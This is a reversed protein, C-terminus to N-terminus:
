SSGLDIDQKCYPCKYVQKLEFWKLICLFHFTHKCKSLKLVGGKLPDLCIPCTEDKVEELYEACNTLMVEVKNCVVTSIDERDLLRQQARHKTASRQSRVLAKAVMKRVRKEEELAADFSTTSINERSQLLHPSSRSPGSANRLGSRTPGLTHGDSTAVTSTATTFNRRSEKLMQSLHGLQHDIDLPNFGSTEEGNGDLWQQALDDLNNRNM